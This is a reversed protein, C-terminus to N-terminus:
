SDPSEVSCERKRQEDNLLFDFLIVARLNRKVPEYKKTFM